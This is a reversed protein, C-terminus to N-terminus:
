FGDQFSHMEFSSWRRQDPYREALVEVTKVKRSDQVTTLATSVDSESGELTLFHINPNVIFHINPNVIFHINPNVIFYGGVRINEFVSQFSDSTQLVDTETMGDEYTVRLTLTVPNDVPQTAPSSKRADLETHYVMSDIGGSTVDNRDLVEAEHFHDDSTIQEVASEVDSPNGEVSATLNTGDVLFHGTIGLNSFYNTKYAEVLDVRDEEALSGDVQAEIVVREETTQASANDASGAFVGFFISLAAFFGFLPNYQKM